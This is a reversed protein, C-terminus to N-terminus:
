HELAYDPAASEPAPSCPGFSRNPTPARPNWRHIRVCGRPSVCPVGHTGIPYFPFQM